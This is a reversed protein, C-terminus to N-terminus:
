AERLLLGSIYQQDGSNGRRTRVSPPADGSASTAAGTRGPRTPQDQLAGGRPRWLQPARGASRALDPGPGRMPGRASREPVCTRTPLGSYMRSLTAVRGGATAMAAGVSIGVCAGAVVAIVHAPADRRPSSLSRPAPSCGFCCFVSTATDCTTQQPLPGWVGHRPLPVRRM